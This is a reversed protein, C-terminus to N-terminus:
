NQKLKILSKECVMKYRCSLCKQSETASAFEEEENLQRKLRQISEIVSKEHKQEFEQAFLYENSHSNQIASFIKQNFSSFKEKFCLSYVQVQLIDPFYAKQSPKNDIIVIKKEYFLIKDIRGTLNHNKSKIFYERTYFPEALGQSLRAVYSEIPEELEVASERFQKELFSHQKTGNLMQISPPLIIKKVKELFFQWECYAHQHLWSIPITDREILKFM